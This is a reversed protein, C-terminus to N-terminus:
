NHCISQLITIVPEKICAIYLDDYAVMGSYKSKVKAGAMNKSSTWGRRAIRAEM